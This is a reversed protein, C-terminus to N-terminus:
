AETLVASVAVLLGVGDVDAAVEYLGGDCAVEACEEECSPVPQLSKATKQQPHSTGDAGVAL